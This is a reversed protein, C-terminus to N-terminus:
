SLEEVVYTIKFEPTLTPFAKGFPIDEFSSHRFTLLCCSAYSDYFSNVLEAGEPLGKTCKVSRDSGGCEYGETLVEQWLELSIPVTVCRTM